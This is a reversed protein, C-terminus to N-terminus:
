EIGAGKKYGEFWAEIPSFDALDKPIDVFTYTETVGMMSGTVSHTIFGCPLSFTEGWLEQPIDTLERALEVSKPKMAEGILTLQPCHLKGAWCVM